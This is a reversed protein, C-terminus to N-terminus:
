RSRVRRSDAKKGMGGDATMKALAHMEKDGQDLCLLTDVYSMFRNLYDPSIDRMLALSSLVMRHSNIPGANKPAKGLAQTVQKEASLKSWTDRFYQASKLEPRSGASAELRADVQEAAHQAVYRVLEGLSERKDSEKLTAIFRGVGTFDGSVFLRQLDAGAQPHIQAAHAIANRADRQAQEFREGFAALAQALKADLIRKVSGKQVNVRHALAEVYHFHVPDFREAGAQRLSDIASSFDVCRGVLSDAIESLGSESM